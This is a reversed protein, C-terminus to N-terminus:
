KWDRFSLRDFRVSEMVVSEWKRYLKAKKLERAAISPRYLRSNEQVLCQGLIFEGPRKTGVTAKVDVKKTMTIIMTANTANQVPVTVIAPINTLLEEVASPYGNVADLMSIM